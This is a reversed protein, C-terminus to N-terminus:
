EAGHVGTGPLGKLAVWLEAKQDHPSNGGIFDAKTHCLWM